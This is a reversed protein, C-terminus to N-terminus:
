RGDIKGLWFPLDSLLRRMISRTNREFLEVNGYAEGGAPNVLDTVGRLILLRTKNRAAISAIAGSEWDGAAAGYKERLRPLGAPDLDQDGSVLKGRVVGDPLPGKLWSLDITTSMEDISVDANGMREIIDYIITREALVITGREIAGTFGGCTGLNVLAAPTWRDIVYQASAAASVKGWGGQFFLVPRLIGDRAKVDKRFYEGFPSKEYREGPFEARVAKWEADASVIVAILDARAEAASAYVLVGLLMVATFCAQLKTKDSM